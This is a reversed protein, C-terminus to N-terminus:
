ASKGNYVCVSTEFSEVKTQIEHTDTHMRKQDDALTRTAPHARMHTHTYGCYYEVVTSTGGFAPKQIRKNTLNSAFTDRPCVMIVVSVQLSTGSRRVSCCSLM